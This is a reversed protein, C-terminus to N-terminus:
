LVYILVSLLFNLLGLEFKHGEFLGRFTLVFTGDSMTIQREAGVFFCKSVWGNLWLKMDPFSVQRLRALTASCGKLLALHAGRTSAVGARARWDDARRAVRYVHGVRSVWAHCRVYDEYGFKLSCAYATILLPM